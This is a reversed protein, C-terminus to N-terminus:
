QEDMWAQISAHAQTRKMVLMLAMSERAFLFTWRAIADHWGRRHGGEWQPIRLKKDQFIFENKLIGWSCVKSYLTHFVTEVRCKTGDFSDRGISNM